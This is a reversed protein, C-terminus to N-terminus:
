NFLFGYKLKCPRSVSVVPVKVSKMFLACIESVIFSDCLTGCQYVFVRPHLLKIASQTPIYFRHLHQAVTLNRYNNHSYFMYSQSDYLYIVSPWNGPGNFLYPIWREKYDLLRKPLHKWIQVANWHYDQPVSSYYVRFNPSLFLFYSKFIIIIIIATHHHKQLVKKKKYGGTWRENEMALLYLCKCSM